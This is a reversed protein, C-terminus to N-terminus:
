LKKEQYHRLIRRYILRRKSAFATDDLSTLARLEAGKIGDIMGYVIMQADVDDDFLLLLRDTQQKTELAKEPNPNSDPVKLIPSEQEGDNPVPVLPPRRQRKKLEGDAISKMTAALFPLIEVDVPCQRSGDLARIYAEQLLDEPEVGHARAYVDALQRLRILQPPTLAGIASAVDERARVPQASVIATV